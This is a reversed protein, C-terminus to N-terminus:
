YIAIEIRVCTITTGFSIVRLLRRNPILFVPGIANRTTSAVYRIVSYRIDEPCFFRRRENTPRRLLLTKLVQLKLHNQWEEIGQKIYKRLKEPTAPDIYYVIPKIPEVLEGKAHWLDDKARFAM